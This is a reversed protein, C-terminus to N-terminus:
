RLEQVAGQRERVRMENQGEPLARLRRWRPARNIACSVGDDVLQRPNGSLTPPFQLRPRRDPLRPLSASQKSICAGFVWGACCVAVGSSRRVWARQAVPPKVTDPLLLFASSLLFDPVTRDDTRHIARDRFLLYLSPLSPCSPRPLSPTFLSPRVKPVEPLSPPLRRCSLSFLVPPDASPAPTWTLVTSTPWTHLRLLSTM